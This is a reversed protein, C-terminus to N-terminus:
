RCSVVILLGSTVTDNMIVDGCRLNDLILGINSSLGPIYSTLVHWLSPNENIKHQNCVTFSVMATQSLGCLLHLFM